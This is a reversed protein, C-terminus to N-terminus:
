QLAVAKLQHWDQIPLLAGAHGIVAKSVLMGAKVAQIPALGKARAALYAGNFGDGAGTTDVVQDAAIVPITQVGESTKLIVPELGQKICIEPVPLETLFRLADAKSGAMGSALTDEVSPLFIDVWPLIQENAKQYHQESPWLAQRYNNDYVVKGGCSRFESVSQCFCDISKESMLALTIGSFYWYNLTTISKLLARLNDSSQFLHKAASDNRWYIFSREGSDDNQILYLGAHHKDDRRVHDVNVDYGKATDIIPQDAYTQGVASVLFSSVNLQASAVATNFVDGAVGKRYDLQNVPALEILPEGIYAITATM